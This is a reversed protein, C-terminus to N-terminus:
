ESRHDCKIERRFLFAARHNIATRQHVRRGQYGTGKSQRGAPALDGCVRVSEKKQTTPSTGTVNELMYQLGPGYAYAASGRLEPQPQAGSRSWDLGDHWIHRPVDCNGCAQVASRV